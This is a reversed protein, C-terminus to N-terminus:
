GRKRMRRVGSAGLALVALGALAATSPEPVRGIQIHDLSDEFAAGLIIIPNGPGGLDLHLWGLNDDVTKFGLFQTGTASALFSVTSVTAAPIFPTLSATTTDATYYDVGFRIQHNDDVGVGSSGSITKGGNSQDTNTVVFDPNSGNGAVDINPFDVGINRSGFPISTRNIEGYLDIVAADLQPAVNLSALAAGFSTIAVKAFKNKKM